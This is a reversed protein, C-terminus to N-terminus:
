LSSCTEAKLHNATHSLSRMALAPSKTVINWISWLFQGSGLPLWVFKMKFRFVLGSSIWWPFIRDVEWSIPFLFNIWQHFHSDKFLCCLVSIPSVWMNNNLFIDFYIGAVGMCWVVSHFHYTYDASTGTIVCICNARSNLSIVLSIKITSNNQFM